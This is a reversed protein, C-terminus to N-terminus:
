LPRRLESWDVIAVALIAFGICLTRVGSTIALAAPDGALGGGEVTSAGLGIFTLGQWVFYAAGLVGAVSRM